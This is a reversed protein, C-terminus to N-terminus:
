DELLLKLMNNLEENTNFKHVLEFKNGVNWRYLMYFPKGHDTYGGLSYGKEHLKRMIPSDAEVWGNDVKIERNSM